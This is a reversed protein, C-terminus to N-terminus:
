YFLDRGYYSLFFITFALFLLGFWLRCWRELKFSSVFVKTMKFKNRNDWVSYGKLGNDALRADPHLTSISLAREGTRKAEREKEKEKEEEHRSKSKERRRVVHIIVYFIFSAWTFIMCGCMWVNGATNDLYEPFAVEISIYETMVTWVVLTGLKIRASAEDRHIWFSSWAMLVAMFSPIYLRYFISPFHRKVYLKVEVCSQRMGSLYNWECTGNEEGTIQSGDGVAGYRLQMPEINTWHLRVEDILHSHPIVRTTCLFNVHEIGVDRTSCPITARFRKSSGVAGSSIIRLILKGPDNNLTWEPELYLDPKWVKDHLTNVLTENVTGPNRSHTYQLRQDDWTSQIHVIVDISQHQIPQVDTIVVRVNVHTAGDPDSSQPRSAYEYVTDQLLAKELEKFSTFAATALNGYLICFVFVFRIIFM